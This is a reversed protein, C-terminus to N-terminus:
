ETTSSGKVSNMNPKVETVLEIRDMILRMILRM